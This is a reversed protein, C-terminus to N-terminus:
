RLESIDDQWINVSRDLYNGETLWFSDRAFTVESTAYGSSTIIDVISYTMWRGSMQYDIAREQIPTTLFLAAKEGLIRTENVPCTATMFMEKFTGRAMRNKLFADSMQENNYPVTEYVKWQNGFNMDKPNVMTNGLTTYNKIFNRYDLAKHQNGERYDYNLVTRGATRKQFINLSNGFDLQRGLITDLPDYNNDDEPRPISNNVNETNDAVQSPAPKTLLTDPKTTSYTRFHDGEFYSYISHYMATPKHGAGGPNSRIGFFYYPHGSQNIMFDNIYQLTKTITWRPIYFNHFRLDEPSPDVDIDYYNEFGHIGKLLNEVLTSGKEGGEVLHSIPFTQYVVTSLFDFAPWEVLHLNIYSAGPRANRNELNEYEEIHFIKFHIIKRKLDASSSHFRNKYSVSLIENGTLPLLERLSSRDALTVLGTRYFQDISERIEISLVNQIVGEFYEIDSHDDDVSPERIVSVEFECHNIVNDVSGYQSPPQTDGTSVM